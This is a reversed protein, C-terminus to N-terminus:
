PHKKTFAVAQAAGYISMDKAAKSFVMGNRLEM